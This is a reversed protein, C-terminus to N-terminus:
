ISNLIKEAQPTLTRVFQDTLHKNDRFVVDGLPSIASCIRNPCVLPNLNLLEAGDVRKTAEHLYAKVEENTSEAQSSACNAALAAITSAGDHEELTRLLCGPGNFPLQPTSPVIYVHKAADALREFIRVSGETWQTKSFPINSASGAIVIEPKVLDLQDLVDNRWKSCVIFSSGIRKYFFDEDVMPCASKTFVLIRWEPPSYISAFLSFWQALISDGVLVITKKYAKDRFECPTAEASHYWTDCNYQYIIPLDKTAQKVKLSWEHSDLPAEKTSLSILVTSSVAIALVSYLIFKRPSQKSFRGRWFPQEILQYFVSAIVLSVLILLPTTWTSLQTDISQALKFVPWHWLYWSYSRDGLWVMAPNSLLKSKRGPGISLLTLATGISPLLVWFGPYPRDGTILIASAIIVALGVLQLWNRYRSLLLRAPHTEPQELNNWIFICGGLSFQWIRAPMMYYAMMPERYSWWLALAWSTFGLVGLLYLLATDTNTTDNVKRAGWFAIILLAPWLLYFQEEVGLSWTHLFLDLSELENFYDIERFAFFINSTWTAAYVASQTLSELEYGSLIERAVTSVSIIMVILAPLLRKLRRSYFDLFDVRGSRKIEKILLGTILYGSLVFFVDVGIFGGPFASLGAHGLVVLLIALARLGQIDSLYTLGLKSNM